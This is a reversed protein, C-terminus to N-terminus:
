QWQAWTLEPRGQTLQSDFNVWSPAVPGLGMLLIKLVVGM